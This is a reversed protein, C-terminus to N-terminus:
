MCLGSSPTAQMYFELTVSGEAALVSRDIFPSTYEKGNVLLKQVFVNEASNNVTSINLSSYMGNYHKLQLTASKVRPSGVWFNSTGAQPMLGLSAFLLWSSMSGYDDNGPNGYSEPAFHLHTVRRSWYQTRSCNPGYNFLFPVHFSHENGAWYYPNPLLSGLPQHFLHQEFFNNLTEDFSEPTRFLNVLGAPDHMVYWLYHLANGERFMQWSEPGIPSVPCHLEGAINKPCFLQRERSWINRYNKSRALAASACDKDGTIACIEALM